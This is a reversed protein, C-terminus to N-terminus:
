HVLVLELRQPEGGTQEPLPLCSRRLESEGKLPHKQPTGGGDFTHKHLTQQRSYRWCTAASSFGNASPFSSTCHLSTGARRQHQIGWLRGGSEDPSHFWGAVGQRCHQRLVHFRPFAPSTCTNEEASRKIGINISEELLRLNERNLLSTLHRCLSASITSPIPNKQNKKGRGWAHRLVALRAETPRTAQSGSILRDRANEPVLDERPQHLSLRDLFLWFHCIESWIGSFSSFCDVDTILSWEAECIRRQSFYM